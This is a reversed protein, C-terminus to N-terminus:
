DDIEDPKDANDDIRLPNKEVIEDIIGYELAEEATMWFDREMDIAVKDYEQGTREAMIRVLTEKTRQIHAAAIQIDTAQGQAGGLPQHIMVESLPLCFRMGETGSVLIMAGMSAAMGNCITRVPCALYRMTNIISYGDIVYGGPSNIYLNIPARPDESELYLMQAVVLGASVNHVGDGLMIVRDKLLRSYIDYAREGRDTQEVVIPVISSTIRPDCVLRHM